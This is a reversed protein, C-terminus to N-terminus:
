RRRLHDVQMRVHQGAEVVTGDVELLGQLDTAGRGRVADLHERSRGM